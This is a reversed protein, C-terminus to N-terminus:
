EVVLGLVEARTTDKLASGYVSDTRVSGRTHTKARPSGGHQEV